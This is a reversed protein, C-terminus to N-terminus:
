SGCGSWGREYHLHTVLKKKQIAKSKPITVVFGYEQNETWALIEHVLTM